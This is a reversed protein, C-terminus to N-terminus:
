AAPPDLTFKGSRKQEKLVASLFKGFDVDKVRKIGKKAPLWANAASPTGPEGFEEPFASGVMDGYFSLFVHVPIGWHEAYREALPTFQKDAWAEVRDIVGARVSALAHERETQQTGIDGNPRSCFLCAGRVTASRRISVSTPRIRNM